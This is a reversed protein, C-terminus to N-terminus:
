LIPAACAQIETVCGYGQELARRLFQVFRFLQFRRRELARRGRRAVQAFYWRLRLWINLLIFSLALWV